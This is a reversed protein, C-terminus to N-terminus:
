RGTFGLGKANRGTLTLTSSDIQFRVTGTLVSLVSGEVTARDAQCPRMSRILPGFTISSGNISAPGSFSNCGTYGTVKGGAFVLYAKTAAASHSAVEGDVVTDLTWRIGELPLDPQAVKKDQLTITTTGSSITLTDQELKWSPKAGLLKAFWDDQAHRPADCGMETIALDAVDLKGDGTGVPGQMSNCGANAVLRGDDAFWLSIRTKAALARSKGDETVATSLFTRGRLADDTTGRAGSADGCGSIALLLGGAVLLWRTNV